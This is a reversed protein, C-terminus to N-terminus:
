FYQSYDIGKHKLLKYIIREKHKIKEMLAPSLLMSRDASKRRSVNVKNIRDIGDLDEISFEYDKLFLKMDEKLNEQRLFRIEALDEFVQDSDIYEDTINALVLEPSKFFMQIFQISLLGIEASPIGHGVFYPIAMDTLELYEEFSLGPYHPFRNRIVPLPCPPYRIWSEFDYRSLYGDIPNRAVSVIQKHLHETPIQAYTGHQDVAGKDAVDSKVKINEILLEKILPPKFGLRIAFQEKIPLRRFKSKYLEKICKRAFTSGTKPLNLLVFQDTILM